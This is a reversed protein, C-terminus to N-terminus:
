VFITECRGPQGKPVSCIWGKKGGGEVYTRKGHECQSPDAATAEASNAFPLEDNSPKEAGAPRGVTREPPVPNALTREFLKDYSVAMQSSLEMIEAIEPGQERLADRLARPSPYRLVLWPVGHKGGAKLTLTATGDAEVTETFPDESM